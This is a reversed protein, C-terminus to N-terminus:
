QFFHKVYFKFSFNAKPKIINGIHLEQLKKIDMIAKPNDKTKDKVNTVTSFFNDFYNKEIHMVDLNHTSFQGELVFVRLINKKKDM